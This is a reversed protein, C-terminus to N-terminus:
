DAEHAARLKRTHKRGVLHDDWQAIGNLLQECISCWYTGDAQQGHSITGRRAEQDGTPAESTSAALLTEAWGPGMIRPAAAAAEERPDGIELRSTATRDTSPNALWGHFVHWAAATEEKTPDRGKYQCTAILENAEELKMDGALIMVSQQAVLSPPPGPPPPPPPPSGSGSPAELALPAPMNVITPAKFGGWNEVEEIVAPPVLESSPLRAPVQTSGPQAQWEGTAAQRDLEFFVRWDMTPVHSLAVQDFKFYGPRGSIPLLANSVPTAFPIQSLLAEPSAPPTWNKQLYGGAVIGERM